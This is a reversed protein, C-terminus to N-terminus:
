CQRNQWSLLRKMTVNPPGAAEQAQFILELGESTRGEQDWAADIADRVADSMQCEGVSRSEETNPQKSTESAAMASASAGWIPFALALIVLTTLCRRM